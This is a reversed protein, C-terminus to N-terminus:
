PQKVESFRWQELNGQSALRGGAALAHIRAAVLAYADERAVFEPGIQEAARGVIFAVKRWNSPVVKLIAEDIDHERVTM